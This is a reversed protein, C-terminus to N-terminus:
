RWAFLCQEELMATEAEYTFGGESFCSFSEYEIPFELQYVKYAVSHIGNM